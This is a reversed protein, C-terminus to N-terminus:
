KIQLYTSSPTVKRHPELATRIEPVSKYLADLAKQDYSVSPRQQVIRVWGQSDTWKHGASAEVLPSLENEIDKLRSKLSSEQAKLKRYRAVLSPIPNPPLIAM